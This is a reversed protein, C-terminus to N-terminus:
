ESDEFYDGELEALVDECYKIKEDLEELEDLDNASLKGKKTINSRQNEFVDMQKLWTSPQQVEWRLYEEMNKRQYEQIMKGSSIQPKPSIPELFEPRPNTAVVLPPPPAAKVPQKAEYEAKMRLIESKLNDPIQSESFVRTVIKMPVAKMKCQPNGKVPPCHNKM